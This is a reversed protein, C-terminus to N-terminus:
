PFVRLLLAVVAAIATIGTFLAVWRTWVVARRAIENAEHTQYAKTEFMLVDIEAKRGDVRDRASEVWARALRAKTSNAAGYRGLALDELVGVIGRAEFEARMEEPNLDKGM